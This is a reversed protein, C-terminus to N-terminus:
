TQNILYNAAAILLHPNDKFNSLGRNCKSCLLGRFKMTKHCHDIGLSKDHQKPKEGCIMCAETRKRVDLEYWQELTLGYQEAYKSAFIKGRNKKYYERKKALVIERNRYHYERADLSLERRNNSRYGSGYEKNRNKVEPRLRYEKQQALYREKEELSM